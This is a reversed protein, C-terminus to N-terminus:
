LKTIVYADTTLSMNNWVNSEGVKRRAVKAAKESKHYSITKLSEEGTYINIYKLQLAYPKM